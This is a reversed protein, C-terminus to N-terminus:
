GQSQLPAPRNPSTESPGRVIPTIKGRLGVLTQVLGYVIPDLQSSQVAPPEKEFHLSVFALARKTLLFKWALMANQSSSLFAAFPTKLEPKRPLVRHIVNLDAALVVVLAILFFYLSLWGHGTVFNFLDVSIGSRDVGYNHHSHDFSTWLVGAAGLLYLIPRRPRWLLALGLTAAALGTWMGHGATLTIGNLRATPIWALEHLAGVQVRVYAVEVLGFGAGSAAGMLLLDSAGMTWLLSKRLRWVIFLVPALKLSEEMIPVLFQRSVSDVPVFGASPVFVAFASSILWMGGMMTGGMCYLSAVRDLTITRTASTVILVEAVFLLSVWLEALGATGTRLIMNGIWFVVGAWFVLRRISFQRGSLTLTGWNRGLFSQRTEPMM